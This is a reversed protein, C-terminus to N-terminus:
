PLKGPQRELLALILPCVRPLCRGPGGDWTNQAKAESVEEGGPLTPRAEEEDGPEGIQDPENPQKM